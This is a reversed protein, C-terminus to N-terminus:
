SPRPSVRRQHNGSGVGQAGGKSHFGNYCGMLAIIFGFVAIKIVGAAIDATTMFDITNKIYIAGNFGLSQTAVVYGGFVGIADAVLM